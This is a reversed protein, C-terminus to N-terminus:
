LSTIGTEEAVERRLTEEITSGRHIRGGSLDWYPDGEHNRLQAPNVKLLLLKGESNRILAKIGLHFCDENM